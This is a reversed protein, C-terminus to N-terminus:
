YDDDTDPEDGKEILENLVEEFKFLNSINRM